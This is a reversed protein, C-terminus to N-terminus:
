LKGNMSLTSAPVPGNINVMIQTNTNSVLAIQIMNNKMNTRQVSGRKLYSWSIFSPQFDKIGNANTFMTIVPATIKHTSLYPNNFISFSVLLDTATSRLGIVNPSFNYRGAM